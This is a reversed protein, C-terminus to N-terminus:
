LAGRRAELRARIEHMRSKTLEYRNVAFLSLAIFVVPIWIYFTRLNEAVHAPQNAGHSAHYGTWVLVVGSLGTTLAGSAKLCWSFVSAFSGERRQGTALEDYDVIDAQMSPAVLWLGTALPGILLSSVIQLWPHEPTYFLYVSLYGAIGVAGIIYLLMRKGFRASLWTCFPVALIAPLFVATSSAGQIKAALVLDGRCVYYANVYFGLSSVLIVGLNKTIVIVLLWLFPRTSLTQKMGALLPQRPQKSTEKAYYREKVFIGPLVGLVITAIGLGISIWRMGNVLDPSGDARVGFVPLTALALIWGSALAIFKQSVSRWATINTREDYDPSMELQLSYYPMSWLTFCSYFLLGSVLLWAAMQWQSIDRPMWWMIPLTLGALIAGAVIFPRRRGWRTRANDSINGMVPDTFADWVRWIMLISSIILPDLGLGINFVPTLNNKPVWVATGELQGGLGYALKQGVPVRDKEPVKSRFM